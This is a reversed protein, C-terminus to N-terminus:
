QPPTTNPSTIAFNCLTNTGCSYSTSILEPDQTNELHAYLQFGQGSLVTTYFYSYSYTPDKPLTKFYITKGDTFDGTGWSCSGGPSPCGLIKGALAPPYSGYDSYYLELASSIQGLDSKRETDRGRMQASTFTELGITALIGLIAIVVLLEVLTFGKNEMKNRYYTM